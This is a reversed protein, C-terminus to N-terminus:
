GSVTVVLHLDNSRLHRISASGPATKVQLLLLVQREPPAAGCRPPTGTAAHQCAMSSGTLPAYRRLPGKVPPPCARLSAATPLRENM